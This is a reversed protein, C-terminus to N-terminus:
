ACPINSVERPVYMYLVTEVFVLSYDNYAENYLVLPYYEHQTYIIFWYIHEHMTYVFALLSMHVHM